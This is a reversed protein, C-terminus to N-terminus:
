RSQRLAREPNMMPGGESGEKEEEEEDDSAEKRRRSPHPSKSRPTKRLKRNERKRNGVETHAEKMRNEIQSVRPQIGAAKKEKKKITKRNAVATTEGSCEDTYKLWEKYTGNEERM